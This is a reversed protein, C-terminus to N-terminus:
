FIYVLRRSFITNPSHCITFTTMGSNRLKAQTVELKRWLLIVDDFNYSQKVRSTADGAEDETNTSVSSLEESQIGQLTNFKTKSQSPNSLNSSNHFVVQPFKFTKWKWPMWTEWIRLLSENLSYVHVNCSVYFIQVLLELFDQNHFTAIFTITVQGTTWTLPLRDNASPKGDWRGIPRPSRDFNPILGLTVSRSKIEVSLSPSWPPSKLYSKLTLSHKSTFSIFRSETPFEM